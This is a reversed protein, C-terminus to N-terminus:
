LSDSRKVKSTLDGLGEEEHGTITLGVSWAKPLHSGGEVGAQQLRVAAPPWRGRVRGRQPAGTVQGSPYSRRAAGKTGHSARRTTTQDLTIAEPVPSM